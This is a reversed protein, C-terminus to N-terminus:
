AAGASSFAASLALVADSVRVATRDSAAGSGLVAGLGFAVGPAFMEGSGCKASEPLVGGFIEASCLSVGFGFFRLLRPSKEHLRSRPPVFFILM